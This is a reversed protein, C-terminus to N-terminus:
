LACVRERAPRPHPHVRRPAAQSRHRSVATANGTPRRLSMPTM